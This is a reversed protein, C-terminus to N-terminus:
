KINIIRKIKVGKSTFTAILGLKLGTAKLYQNVQEITQRNFYDGKKLELIIKDDILFDLFNIGIQTEQFILPTSVQEKFQLDNKKLAIAVAKQYYKEKYGPGLTKFVDFLIGVIKYHAEAYILDKRKTAGGATHM